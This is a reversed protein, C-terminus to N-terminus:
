IAQHVRYGIATLFKLGSDRYCDAYGSETEPMDPHFRTGDHFTKAGDAYNAFSYGKPAKTDRPFTKRGKPPKPAGLRSCHDTLLHGDIYLGSLASTEKDYGYGSAKAHQFYFDRDKSPKAQPNAKAFAAQSKLAPATSQWVNVLCVGGDSFHCNVTAVEAGKRDLIVFAKISKGAATERVYINAM